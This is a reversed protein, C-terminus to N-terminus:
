INKAVQYLAYWQELTLNQARLQPAIGAADLLQTTQPKDIGLGGSLANLLTKRRSSYGAKVVRFFQKPDVDPFLPQPRRQFAVIQSDVKPPPTFLEAPVEDHLSVEWYFQASVSLLSMKGPAAAIRQAVEKQVLLAVQSPQNPTESIVRVLNSTLYYPINAVIKYGTPLATFDFSLIDSETVSLNAAPVRALLSLALEHDFEVAVVQQAQAVLLKTLTGLGPGIELVTDTPQVDAALCMAELSLEDYLWHQGLAKRPIPSDTM